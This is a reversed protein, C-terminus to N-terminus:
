SWKAGGDSSAYIRYVLKISEYADYISGNPERNKEISSVFDRYEREWSMDPEDWEFVAKDPPGMEPKMKYFTLTEKGYSRGLGDIVILGTKCFIEFSFMNKWQTCSAHLHAARGDVTKMIAFCNDEVDMDWFFTGCHGIVHKFDGMFYRSLDIIHSGQDLMEGGGSVNRDARWERDYDPRGGHGYRARIYMIGGINEKAILEKAKDFAPHFRHNFGVKIRQKKGLGEYVEIIRKVEDPNRGAPKEILVHKGNRLADIAIESHLNNPTAVIVININKDQTVDKWDASYMCEYKAALNKAAETNMDAVKVLRSGATLAEARKNGILGCGIIGVNYKM